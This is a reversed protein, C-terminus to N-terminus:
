DDLARSMESIILRAAEKRDSAETIPRGIVMYDAGSRIAEYPTSTRKQDDKQSGHPRIGPSVVMLKEKSLQKIKSAELASAIVGDVGLDMAKTARHIVLDEVTMTSQFGMEQIDEADMSTLVTVCLIKLNADGRGRVASKLIGTVGHVTLFDIGMEAARAVANFITEDIDYYKYDLFVRKNKDKLEKAFKDGGALQLGLGVKYFTVDDGLESVLDRADEITSFDLAVILKERASELSDFETRRLEAAAVMRFDGIARKPGFELALSPMSMCLGAPLGGSENAEQL